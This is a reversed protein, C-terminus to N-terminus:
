VRQAIVGKVLDSARLFFDTTKELRDSLKVMAFARHNLRVLLLILEKESLSEIQRTIETETHRYSDHLIKSKLDDAQHEIESIARYIDIPHDAKKLPEVIMRMQESAIGILRALEVLEESVDGDFTFRLAQYDDATGEIGDLIDDLARALELIQNLPFPNTVSDRCLRYIKRYVEDGQTEIRDIERHLEKCQREDTTKDLMQNLLTAAHEILELQEQFFEYFKKDTPILRISRIWGLFREFRTM